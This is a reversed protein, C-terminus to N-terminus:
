ANDPSDDAKEFYRCPSATGAAPRTLDRLTCQGDEQWRCNERCPIMNM